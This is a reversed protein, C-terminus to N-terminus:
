IFIYIYIIYVCIFVGLHLMFVVFPVSNLGGGQEGGLFFISLKRSDSSGRGNSFAHSGLNSRSILDALFEYSVGGGQQTPFDKWVYPNQISQQQYYNM